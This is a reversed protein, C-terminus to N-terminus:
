EGKEEKKEGKKNENKGISMEKHEGAEIEKEHRGHMDKADIEHRKHMEKKSKGGTAEHTAHEIEHRNYMERREHAHRAHMPLGEGHHETMKVGDTGSQEKDAEKEKVSMHGDEDRELHPKKKYMREHRAMKKEEAM